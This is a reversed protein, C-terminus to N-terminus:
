RINNQVHHTGRLYHVPFTPLGKFTAPAGENENEVFRDQPLHLKQAKPKSKIEQAPYGENPTKGTGQGGWLRLMSTPMTNSAVGM